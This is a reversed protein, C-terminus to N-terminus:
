EEVELLSCRVEAWDMDDLWGEGVNEMLYERAYRTGSLDAGPPLLSLNDMLDSVWSGLQIDGYQYVTGEPPIEEGRAIERAKKVLVPDNRLWNKVTDTAISVGDNAGFESEDIPKRVPSM